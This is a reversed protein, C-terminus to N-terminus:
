LHHIFFYAKAYIEGLDNAEKACNKVLRKVNKRKKFIKMIELCKKLKQIFLTNATM